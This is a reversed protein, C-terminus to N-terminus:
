PKLATILWDSTFTHYFVPEALRRLTKSKFMCSALTERLIKHERDGEPLDISFDFDPKLHWMILQLVEERLHLDSM